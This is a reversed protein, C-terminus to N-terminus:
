DRYAVAPIELVQGPLLFGAVQVISMNPAHDGVWPVYVRPIAEALAPLDCAYITLSVLNTRDLGETKLLDDIVRLIFELQRATDDPHVIQLDELSGVNAVVGALHVTDGASVIQNFGFGKFVDPTIFNNVQPSSRRIM